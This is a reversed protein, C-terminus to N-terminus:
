RNKATQGIQLVQQPTHIGNEAYVADFKASM